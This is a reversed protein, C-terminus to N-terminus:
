FTGYYEELTMPENLIEDYGEPYHDFHEKCYNHGANYITEWMRMEYGKFCCRDIYEDVVMTLTSVADDDNNEIHMNMENRIDFFNMYALEAFDIYLSCIIVETSVNEIM